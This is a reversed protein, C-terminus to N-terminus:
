RKTTVKVVLELVLYYPAFLFVVQWVVGVVLHLLLVVLLSVLKRELELM